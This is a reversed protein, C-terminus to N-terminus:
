AANGIYFPGSEIGCMNVGRRIRFYGSDGWNSGWSNRVKWYPINTATDVGYGVIVVAHNTSTVLTPCGSAQFIGSRYANFGLSIQRGSATNDGVFLSVWLPGYDILAQQMAVANNVSVRAYALTGFRTRSSAASNFACRSAVGKYTYFAESNVQWTNSRLYNFTNTFYGGGCGNDMTSCDVIQQESLATKSKVRISHLFELLTIFAFAYCSGCQGQSKIPLIVPVSTGAVVRDTYDFSAPPTARGQAVKGNWTLLRQGKRLSTNKISEEPIRIGRLRALEDPTWDAFENLSLNYTEDGLQHHYVIANLTENFSNLRLNEESATKPHHNLEAKYLNFLGKVANSKVRTSSKGSLSTLFSQLAVDLNAAVMGFGVM